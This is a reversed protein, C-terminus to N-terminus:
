RWASSSSSIVMLGDNIWTQLFHSITFGGVTIRLPTEWFGLFQESLSSNALGIATVTMVLLFVGSAAEVHLFRTLPVILRDVPEHPLRPIASTGSREM